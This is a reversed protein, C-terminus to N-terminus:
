KKCPEKGEKIRSEVTKQSLDGQVINCQACFYQPSSERVEVQKWGQVADYEYNTRREALLRLNQLFEAGCYQCGWKGKDMGKEKHNEKYKRCILDPNPPLELKRM